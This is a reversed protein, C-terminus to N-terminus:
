FFKLFLQLLLYMLPITIVSLTHSIAAMSAGTHADGGYAAPFVVTNLGLPTAYAFFAMQLVLDSAGLLRLLALIVAPLVLLRLFTAVYVKKDKLMEKISYGGIIFGTLVMAVPAMCAKLSDIIDVLFPPVYSAVGTLGLIAGIVMAIISPNILNKLVHGDGEGHPILIYLGWSYIAVNVPLTFLLYKFLIGSDVGSLIAVVVANGVFGSNAFTLAYKYINRKYPDNKVFLRSLPIAIAMAVALAICSYIILAAHEKLSNLSCYNMFTSLTLAPVFVYTELKSMVAAGNSPLKKFIKLLYGVVICGFLVLMPACTALFVDM